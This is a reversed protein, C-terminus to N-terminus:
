SRVAHSELFLGLRQALVEQGKLLLAPAAATGAGSLVWSVGALGVLLCAVHVACVFFVASGGACVVSNAFVFDGACFICRTSAVVLCGV